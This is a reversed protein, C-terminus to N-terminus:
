RPRREVGFLTERSTRLRAEAPDYSVIAIM